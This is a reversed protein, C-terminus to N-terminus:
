RSRVKRRSTVPLGLFKQSSLSLRYIIWRFTLHSCNDVIHVMVKLKHGERGAHVIREVLWPVLRVCQLSSLDQESRSHSFGRNREEREEREAEETFTGHWRQKYKKGVEKWKEFHTKTVISILVSCLM